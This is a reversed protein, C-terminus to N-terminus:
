PMTQCLHKVLAYYSLVGTYTYKTILATQHRTCYIHTLYHAVFKGNPLPSQGNLLTTGDPLGDQISGDSILGDSVLGGDNVLGGSVSSPSSSSPSIREVSCEAYGLM